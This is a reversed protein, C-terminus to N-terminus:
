ITIRAKMLSSYGCVQFYKEMQLLLTEAEDGNKIIGNFMHPKIMKFEDRLEFTLGKHSKKRRHLNKQIMVKLVRVKQVIKV